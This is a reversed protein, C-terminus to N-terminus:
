GTCSQARWKRRSSAPTSSLAAISQACWATCGSSAPARSPCRRWKLWMLTARSTPTVHSAGPAGKRCGLAGDPRPPPWNLCTGSGPRILSCCEASSMPIRVAPPRWSTLSRNTPSATRRTTSQAGGAWPSASKPECMTSTCTPFPTNSIPRGTWRRKPFGSNCRPPISAQGPGALLSPPTGTRDWWPRVSWETCGPSPGAPPM